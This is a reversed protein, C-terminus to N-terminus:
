KGHPPNLLEKIKDTQGTRTYRQIFRNRYLKEQDEGKSSIRSQAVAESRRLARTLRIHINQFLKRDISVGAQKYARRFEKGDSSNMIKRVEDRFVKSQGM